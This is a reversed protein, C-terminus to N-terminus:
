YEERPGKPPSERRRVAELMATLDARRRRDTASAILRQLREVYGVQSAGDGAEDQAKLNSSRRRQVAPEPAAAVSPIIDQGSGLSRRRSGLWLLLNAEFEQDIVCILLVGRHLKNLFPIQDKLRRAILFANYLIDGVHCLQVHHHRFKGFM